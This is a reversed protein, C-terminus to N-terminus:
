SSGFPVNALTSLHGRTPYPNIADDTPGQKLNNPTDSDKSQQKRKQTKHNTEKPKETTTDNTIKRPVNTMQLMKIQM